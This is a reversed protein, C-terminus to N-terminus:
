AADRLSAPKISNDPRCSAGPRALTPTASFTRARFPEPQSSSTPMGTSIARSSSTFVKSDSETMAIPPYRKSTPRNNASALRLIFEHSTFEQPMDAIVAPSHAHISAFDHRAM